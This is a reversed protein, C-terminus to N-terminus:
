AGGSLRSSLRVNLRKSANESAPCMATEPRVKRVPDIATEVRPSPSRPRRGWVPRAGRPRGHGGLGFRPWARAAWASAPPSRSEPAAGRPSAWAPRSASGACTPPAARRTVFFTSSRVACGAARHDSRRRSRPTAGPRRDIIEGQTARHVATRLSTLRREALGHRNLRPNRSRRKRCRPEPIRRRDSSRRTPSRAIRLDIRQRRRRPPASSSGASDLSHGV